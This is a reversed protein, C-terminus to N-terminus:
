AHTSRPSKAFSVDLRLEFSIQPPKLYRWTKPRHTPLALVGLECLRVAPSCQCTANASSSSRLVSVTGTEDSCFSRESNRSGEM